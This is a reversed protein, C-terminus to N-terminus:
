VHHLCRTVVGWITLAAPDPVSVDQYGTNEAALVIGRGTLRLRRVTLEGDLVAVVVSGDRPTLSRDVILEDGDSIGTGSMSDGSVRVIYTSTVDRILHRNLDIRGDFYDRSPSPFGSAADADSVSASRSNGSVNFVPM